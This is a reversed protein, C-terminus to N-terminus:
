LHFLSQHDTRIVFPNKLLYCRWEDIALLIASFEKEYTSLKQNTVSFGKSFYFIPHGNQSLVVGIGIDSADTEIV